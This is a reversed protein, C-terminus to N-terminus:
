CGADTPCSRTICGQKIMPPHWEYKECSLIAMGVFIGDATWCDCSSVIKYDYVKVESQTLAEVNSLLLNDEDESTVNYGFIGLVGLAAACFVIKLFKKM